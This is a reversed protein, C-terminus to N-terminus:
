ADFVMHDDQDLLDEIDFAARQDNLDKLSFDDDDNIMEIQNGPDGLRQHWTHQSVFFAHPIPSPTTVPYLDGTSDCRLLVRRM